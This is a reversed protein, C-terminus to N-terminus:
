DRLEYAKQFQNEPMFRMLICKPDTRLALFINLFGIYEMKMLVDGFSGAPFV